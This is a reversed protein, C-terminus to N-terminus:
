PRSQWSRFLLFFLGGLVAGIWHAENLVPNALTQSADPILLYQWALKSALLIFGIIRLTRISHFLIRLTLNKSQGWIKTM